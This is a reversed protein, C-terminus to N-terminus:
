LEQAEKTMGELDLYSAVVTLSAAGKCTELLIYVTDM